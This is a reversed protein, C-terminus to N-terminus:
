SAFPVTPIVLRGFPWAQEIRNKRFSWPPPPLWNKVQAPTHWGIVAHHDLHWLQRDALALGMGSDMMQM